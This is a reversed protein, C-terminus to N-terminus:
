HAHEEEKDKVILRLLMASYIFTSLMIVGVVITKFMEIPEFAPPIMM